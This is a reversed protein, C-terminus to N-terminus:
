YSPIRRAALQWYTCAFALTSPEGDHQTLTTGGYADAHVFIHHPPLLSELAQWYLSLKIKEAKSSCIMAMSSPMHASNSPRHFRMLPGRDYLTSLAGVQGHVRDVCKSPERLGTDPNRLGAVLRYRGEPLTAPLFFPAPVQALAGAPWASTPHDLLPWGAYGAM